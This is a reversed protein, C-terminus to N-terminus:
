RPPPHLEHPYVLRKMIYHYVLQDKATVAYANVFQWGQSGMFNMADVMSNFVRPRGTQPDVMPDGLMQKWFGREQGSDVEVTVKTGFFGASKGLLECYVEYPQM